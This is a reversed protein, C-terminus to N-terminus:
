QKRLNKPKAPPIASTPPANSVTVSVSPSAATNGAADRATAALAHTGNTALATNWSASYPATTDEAGLNAGDLRFQVGAVGVDDSASASVSVTGSVTAGGAPSAISVAPPTIDASPPPAAVGVSLSSEATSNGDSVSLTWLYTSGASIGPYNFAAPQVPGSGSLFDTRAGGNIAYFWAWSLPDNDPDSATASYTVSTGAYVQLGPVAPDVDSASAAVASVTPSRNAPAAAVYVSDENSYGSEGAPNYATVAFYYTNGAPLPNVVYTATSPDVPLGIDIVQTYAASTTGYHIKYGALDAVTLPSGDQLTLPINWTLTAGNAVAPIVGALFAWALSKM